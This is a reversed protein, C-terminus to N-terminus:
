IGYLELRFEDNALTLRPERRTFAFHARRLAPIGRQGQEIGHAESTFVRHLRPNLRLTAGKGEAIEKGCNDCVLVTKRAM